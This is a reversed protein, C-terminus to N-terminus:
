RCAFKGNKADKILLDDAADLVRGEGRKKNPAGEEPKNWDHAHPDGMGHDHGFDIDKVPNGDSDYTRIQIIEGTQKNRKLLVGDKPGFDGTRSGEPLRSKVSKRALGFVDVGGNTDLVYGYLAIGGELGIPDQSVYM